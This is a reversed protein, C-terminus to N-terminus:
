LENLKKLKDKRQQILTEGCYCCSEKVDVCSVKLSNLEHPKSHLCGYGDHFKDSSSCTDYDKCIVKM